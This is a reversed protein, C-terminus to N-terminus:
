KSTRPRCYPHLKCVAERAAQQWAKIPETGYVSDDSFNHQGAGSAVVHWRRSIVDIHIFAVYRRTHTYRIRGDSVGSLCVSVIFAYPFTKGYSIKGMHTPHNDVVIAGRIRFSEKIIGEVAPVWQDMSSQGGKCTPGNYVIFVREGRLKKESKIDDMPLVPWDVFKVTACGSLVLLMVGLLVLYRM